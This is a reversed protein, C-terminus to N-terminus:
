ALSPPSLGSSALRHRQPPARDSGPSLVSAARSDALIPEPVVGAIVVLLPAPVAVAGTHARAPAIECCVPPAKPEPEPCSPGCCAMKKPPQAALPRAGVMLAFTASLLVASLRKLSMVRM